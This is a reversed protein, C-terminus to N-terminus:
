FTLSLGGDVILISGTIFSRSTSLFYAANAVEKVTGFRKLPIREQYKRINESSLTNALMDTEIFGPCILNATINKPGLEKALSKTFGVLGSKSTSYITQGINGNLGVISGKKQRIMQKYFGKVMLIPGILNTAMIAQIEDLSNSILLNNSTIGASNVLVDIKEKSSTLEINIQECTQQIDKPNERLNDETKSILTVNYANKKLGFDFHITKLRFLM